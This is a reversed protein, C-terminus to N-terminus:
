HGVIIVGDKDVVIPQKFGFKAISNAVYEVAGDNKRPNHEYQHIEALKREIVDM